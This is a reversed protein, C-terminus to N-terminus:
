SSPGDTHWGRLAKTAIDHMLNHCDDVSNPNPCAVIAQLAALLDGCPRWGKAIAADVAAMAEVSRRDPDNLLYGAEDLRDKVAGYLALRASPLFPAPETASEGCFGGSFRSSDSM